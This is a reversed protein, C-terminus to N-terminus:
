VGSYGLPSIRAHFEVSEVPYEQRFLHEIREIVMGGTHYNVTPLLMAVINDSYRTVIDGKRLNKRLIEMLAAIGSERTVTNDSGGAGGIMVVGLFMTSGLRELNRMQINYFEKFARYDCFFPGQREGEREALENRIVDLNFQLTQGAEALQEAYAKMDESPEADFYRQSKKVAKRYETMADSARNLSVMAQMLEIHLQEDLDDIKMAQRCVACIRNYEESKKLQGIYAYVATLYEKRLWNATASGSNIDGTQYLDGAYLSLLKESLVARDAASVGARLRDYIGLIELVDVSVLPDSQWSYAGQSSVICNGLGPSIGNLISRFRSVMTKLANEPSESRRDSWLERILRQSAVPKGRQLILYQMLSVGKRSKSALTDYLVGDAEILFAGMMQVRIPDNM